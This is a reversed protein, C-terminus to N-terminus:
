KRELHGLLTLADEDNNEDCINEELCNRGLYEVCVKEM